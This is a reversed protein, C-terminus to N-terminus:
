LANVHTSQVGRVPLRAYVCRSSGRRAMVASLLQSDSHPTISGDEDVDEHRQSQKQVDEQATAVVADDEEEAEDVARHERGAATQAVRWPFCVM